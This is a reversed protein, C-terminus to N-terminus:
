KIVKKGNVIYLGGKVPKTVKRGQLDYVTGNDITLQGNDITKVGTTEDGEFVFTLERAASVESAPLLAKGAPVTGANVKKFVNGSLGYYTDAAVATATTIGTLLNTASIDSGSAAVPINISSSATGKLLVGTGAAVTGTIQSFTIVGTSSNAATIKWASYESDDSFDLAFSSAFTAYGSSNLTVSQCGGAISIPGVGVNAGKVFLLKIVRTTSAFDETTALSLIDDQKGSITLEEVDSFDLGNTSEQVKIKSTSAGSIMKVGVSVKLPQANTFIEIYDGDTDFKVLYPNHAAAYDSGLNYGIVGTVATLASKGGGAWNFPLSAPAKGYVTRTLVGSTNGYADYAIAKIKVTGSSLSIPGTYETSSSTPTAPDSGNTTMNYYITNGASTLTLGAGALYNGTSALNCEPTAVNITYSASAVESVGGDKVAIAKLTTATTIAIPASYVTGTTKTPESGDTTYRIEDAAAQTLTILTGADIKGSATSFSPADIGSAQTITILNSFAEGEDGLAYVKMYATRAGGTNADILYEVNFEANISATIWDYDTQTEGDAEYFIVDADYDTLNDYTVSISGDDVEDKTVNISTTGLTISPDSGGGGGGGAEECDIEMCCIYGAKVTAVNIVVVGTNGDAAPTFTVKTAKTWDSGASSNKVVTTGDSTASKGGITVTPTVSTGGLNLWLRVETIKTKDKYTGTDSGWASSSTLTISGNKTSTGLQVGAYNGSNYNGLNTASINWKVSSLTVDNGTSPKASFVHQYTTAAAWLSTSGVVLACLLLMTKMLLLKKM